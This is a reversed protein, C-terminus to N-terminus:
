SPKMTTLTPECVARAGPYVPCGIDMSVVVGSFRVV